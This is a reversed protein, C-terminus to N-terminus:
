PPQLSSQNAGRSLGSLGKRVLKAMHFYDPNPIQTMGIDDYGSTWLFPLLELTTSVIFDEPLSTEEKEEAVPKVVGLQVGAEHISTFLSFNRIKEFRDLYRCIQTEYLCNNGSRAPEKIVRIHAHETFDMSWQCAVGNLQINSVVSQLLEM